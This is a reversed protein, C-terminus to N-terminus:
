LTERTTSAPDSSQGVGLRLLPLAQIFLESFEELMRNKNIQAFVVNTMPIPSKALVKIDSITIDPETQRLCIHVMEPLASACYKILGGAQELASSEQSKVLGGSLKGGVFELFPQLHAIFTMYDDYPLDVLTFERDGLKVKHDSLAPDNTMAAIKQTDSIDILPKKTKAM